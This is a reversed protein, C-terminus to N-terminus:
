DAAVAWLLFLTGLLAILSAWVHKIRAGDILNGVRSAGVRAAVAEFAELARRRSRRVFNSASLVVGVGWVAQSGPELIPVIQRLRDGLAVCAYSLVSTYSDFQGLFQVDQGNSGCMDAKFKYTGPNTVPNIGHLDYTTVGAEKLWEILRWHLLYSGKSRLGANSTAGYLYVATDGIASCILGSCLRGGEKCLLVRMKLNTPLRKQISRFESINTPRFAKRIVLERYIGIFDKFLADASGEVVELRNREAMRLSRRWHPRMSKRLEETSKTLDLLLTRDLPGTGACYGEEALACQLDSSTERFLAPRLRLVLSRKCAYENRLARVAQQFSHADPERGKRRWLPGWRVYAIGAGIFPLKVLRAQAAAVIEGDKRLVLHSLNQRGGRIEDYSWTQYLSADDFEELIRHWRAEDVADIEVSYSPDLERPRRRNSFPM